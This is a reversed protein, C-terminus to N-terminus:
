EKLIATESPVLGEAKGTVPSHETMSSHSWNFHCLTGATRSVILSSKLSEEKVITTM